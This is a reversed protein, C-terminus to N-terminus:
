HSTSYNSAVTKIQALAAAIKGVVAEAGTIRYCAPAVPLGCRSNHSCLRVRPSGTCSVFLQQFKM